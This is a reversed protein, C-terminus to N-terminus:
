KTEWEGRRRARWEAKTFPLLHFTFPLEFNTITKKESSRQAEEKLSQALYLKGL